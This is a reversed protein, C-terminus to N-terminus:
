SGTDTDKVHCQKLDNHCINLHICKIGVLPFQIKHIHIKPAYCNQLFFMNESLSHTIQRRLLQFYIIQKM